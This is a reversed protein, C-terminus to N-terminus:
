ITKVSSSKESMLSHTKSSNRLLLFPKHNPLLSPCVSGHLWWLCCRSCFLPKQGCVSSRAELHIKPVCKNKYNGGEAENRGKGHGKWLFKLIPKTSCQRKKGEEAGGERERGCVTVLLSLSERRRFYFPFCFRVSESLARWGRCRASEAAKPYLRTQKTLVITAWNM